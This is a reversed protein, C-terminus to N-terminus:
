EANSAETSRKKLKEVAETIDSALQEPYQKLAQRACGIDSHMQECEIVLIGMADEATMKEQSKDELIRRILEERFGGYGWGSVANNFLNLLRCFNPNDLHDQGIGVKLKGLAGSAAVVPFSHPSRKWEELIKSLLVQEEKSADFDFEICQKLLGTLGNPKQEAPQAAPALIPAPAKPEATHIQAPKTKTIPM